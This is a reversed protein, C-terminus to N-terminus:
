KECFIVKVLSESISEFKENSNIELRESKLSKVINLFAEVSKVSSLNNHVDYHKMDLRFKKNTMPLQIVPKKLEMFALMLTSYYSLAAHCDFIEDNEALVICQFKQALEELYHSKDGPHKKAYIIIPLNKSEIEELIMKFLDFDGLYKEMIRAGSDLVQKSTVIQGLYAIRIKDQHLAKQSFNIKALDYHRIVSANDVANFISSIGTNDYKSLTLLNSLKMPFHRLIAKVPVPYDFIGHQWFIVKIRLLNAIKMLVQNKTSLQVLVIYDPREVFLSCYIKYKNSKQEYDKFVANIGNKCWWSSSEYYHSFRYKKEDIFLVKKV